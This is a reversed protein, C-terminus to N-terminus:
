PATSSWASRGNPPLTRVRNAYTYNSATGEASRIGGGISAPVNTLPPAKGMGGPGSLTDPGLLAILDANFPVPKQHNCEASDIVLAFASHHDTKSKHDVESVHGQIFAGVRLDCGSGSWPNIVYAHFKSGVKLRSIDLPLRISASIPAPPPPAQAFGATAECFLALAAFGRFWRM